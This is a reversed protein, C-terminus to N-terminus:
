TFIGPGGHSVWWYIGVIGLIFLSLSLIPILFDFGFFEGGTFGPLIGELIDHFIPVLQFLIVLLFPVLIVAAIQAFRM